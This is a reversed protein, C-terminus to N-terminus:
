LEIQERMGYVKSALFNACQCCELKKLVESWSDIAITHGWTRRTDHTSWQAPALIICRNEIARCTIFTRLTSKEYVPLM